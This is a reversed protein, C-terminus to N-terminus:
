LQLRGAKKFSEIKSKKKGSFSVVRCGRCPCKGTVQLFCSLSFCLSIEKRVHLFVCCIIMLNYREEIFVAARLMSAHFVIQPVRRVM